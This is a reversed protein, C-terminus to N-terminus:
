VLGRTLCGARDPAWPAESLGVAPLLPILMKGTTRRRVSQADM